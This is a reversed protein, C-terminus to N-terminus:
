HKTMWIGGSEVDAFGSAVIAGLILAITSAGLSFWGQGQLFDDVFFALGGIAMAIAIGRKEAM